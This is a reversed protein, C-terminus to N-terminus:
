VLTDFKVNKFFVTEIMPFFLYVLQEGNETIVYTAATILKRQFLNIPSERYISYIM